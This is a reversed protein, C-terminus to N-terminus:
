RLSFLPATYNSGTTDVILCNATVAEGILHGLMHVNHFDSDDLSDSQM